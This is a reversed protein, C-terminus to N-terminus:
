PGSFCHLIDTFNQPLTQINWQIQDHLLIHLNSHHGFYKIHIYKETDIDSILEKM